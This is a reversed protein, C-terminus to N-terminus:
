VILLKDRHMPFVESSECCAWFVPKREAWDSVIKVTNVLPFGHFVAYLRTINAPWQWSQRKTEVSRMGHRFVGGFIIVFSHTSWSNSKPRAEKQLSRFISVFFKSNPWFFTNSLSGWFRNTDGFCIRLCFIKRIIKKKPNKKSVLKKKNLCITVFPFGSWFRVGPRGMREDYYKSPHGPM